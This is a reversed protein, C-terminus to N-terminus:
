LQTFYPLIVMLEKLHIFIIGLTLTYIPTLPRLIRKTLRRELQQTFLSLKNEQPQLLGGTRANILMGEVEILAVKDAGSGRGRQVITEELSNTNQVPTILFSPACGCILLALLPFFKMM